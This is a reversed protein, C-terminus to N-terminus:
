KPAVLKFFVAVPSNNSYFSSLLASGDNFLLILYMKVSALRWSAILSSEFFGAIFDIHQTRPDVPKNVGQPM